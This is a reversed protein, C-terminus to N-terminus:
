AAMMDKWWDPANAEDAGGPHWCKETAHDKRRCNACRGRPQRNSNANTNTALATLNPQATASIGNAKKVVALYTKIQREAEIVNPAALVMAFIPIYDSGLGAALSALFGQLEIKSGQAKADGWAKKKAKLYKEMDGSNAALTCGEYEAEATMRGLLTTTGYQTTVLDWLDKRDRDTKINLSRHDVCNTIFSSILAATRQCYEEYFPNLSTVPTSPETRLTTTASTTSGTSSTTMLAITRGAAAAATNTPDPKVVTRDLYGGLGRATMAQKFSIEFDLFNEGNFKQDDPLVFQPISSM